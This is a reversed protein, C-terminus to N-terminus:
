GDCRDFNAFSGVGSGSAVISEGRDNVGELTVTFNTFGLDTPINVNNGTFRKRGDTASAFLTVLTSAGGNAAVESSGIFAIRQSTFRTGSGDSNPVTYSLSTFRVDSNTNNVVRVRVTTDFFPEFRITPTGQTATSCNDQNVDVSPGDGAGDNLVVSTLRVATTDVGGPEGDGGGNGVGGSGGTGLGGGSAGPFGDFGTPVEGGCLITEFKRM